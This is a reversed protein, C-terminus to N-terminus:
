KTAKVVSKSKSIYGAPLWVPWVLGKLHASLAAFRSSILGDQATGRLVHLLDISLLVPMRLLMGALLVLNAMWAAFHGRRKHLVLMSSMCEIIKLVRRSQGSSFRHIHIITALPFYVIRWGGARIRSCWEEDEGYMFFDEDLMGVGDLVERRVMMFCGAVTDVDTPESFQRAWYRGYNLREHAIAGLPLLRIMFLVLPDNFRYCSTQFRRDPFEIRCGLTGIDAHDDMFRVSDDLAGPLVITDNNLLLVYRGRAVAFGRNNGAAFGLNQANRVIRVEPFQTQIMVVSDDRSDNDVVIIEFSFALRNNYISTLCDELVPKGNWNVIVISLKM